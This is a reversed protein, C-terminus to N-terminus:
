NLAGSDRREEGRESMESLKRRIFELASEAANAGDQRNAIEETLEVAQPPRGYGRDLIAVAATVRTSVAPRDFLERMEGSSHKELAREGFENLRPVLGNVVDMLVAVSALGGDRAALRADKEIRKQAVTEPTDKPRGLPNPSVGKAFPKGRPKGAPKGAIVRNIAM